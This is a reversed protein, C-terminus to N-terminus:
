SPPSSGAPVAQWHDPLASGNMAGAYCPNNVGTGDAWMSDGGHKDNYVTYWQTWGTAGTSVWSDSTVSADCGDLDYADKDANYYLCPATAEGTSEDMILGDSGEFTTCDGSGLILLGSGDIRACDGSFDENYLNFGSTPIGNLPRDAAAQAATSAGAAFALAALGATALAVAIRKIM